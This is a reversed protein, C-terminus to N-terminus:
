KYATLRENPGTVLKVAKMMEEIEYGEDVRDYARRVYWSRRTAKGGPRYTAANAAAVAATRALAGRQRCVLNFRM